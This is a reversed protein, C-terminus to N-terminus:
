PRQRWWEGSLARIPLAITQDPESRMAQLPVTFRAPLGVGLLPLAMLSTWQDAGFTTPAVSVAPAERASRNPGRKPGSCRGRIRGASALLQGPEFAVNM